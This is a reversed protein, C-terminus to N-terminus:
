AKPSGTIITTFAWVILGVLAVSWGLNPVSLGADSLTGVTIAAFITV